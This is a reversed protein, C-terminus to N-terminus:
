DVTSITMVTTSDGGGSVQVSTSTAKVRLRIVGGSLLSAITTLPVGQPLDIANFGASQCVVNIGNVAICATGTSASPPLGLKEDSVVGHDSIRGVPPRPDASSTRARRGSANTPGVSFDEAAM